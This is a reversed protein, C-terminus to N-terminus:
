SKLTTHANTAALTGGAGILKMSFEFKELKEFFFRVNNRPYHLSSIQFQLNPAFNPFSPLVYISPRIHADDPM